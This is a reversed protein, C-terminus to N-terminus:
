NLVEKTQEDLYQFSREANGYLDLVRMKIDSPLMSAGVLAAAEGKILARYFEIQFLRDQATVFAQGRIVDAKNEAIVYAIGHEDRIISIPQENISIEFTGDRKFNNSNAIWIVGVLALVLLLGLFVLIRKRM